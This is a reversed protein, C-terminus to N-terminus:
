HPKILMLFEISARRLHGCVCNRPSTNIERDRRFFLMSNQSSNLLHSFDCVAKTQRIALDYDSHREEEGCKKPLVRPSSVPTNM